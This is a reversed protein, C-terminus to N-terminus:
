MNPKTNRAMVKNIRQGARAMSCSLSVTGRQAISESAFPPQEKGLLFGEAAAVCEM